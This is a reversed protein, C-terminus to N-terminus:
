RSEQTMAEAGFGKMNWRRKEDLVVRGAFFADGLLRAVRVADYADGADCHRRVIHRTHAAPPAGHQALGAGLDLTAIDIRGSHAEYYTGM